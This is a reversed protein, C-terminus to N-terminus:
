IVSEKEVCEKTSKVRPLHTSFSAFKPTLRQISNPLEKLVENRKIPESKGLTTAKKSTKDGEGIAKPRSKQAGRLIPTPRQLIQTPENKYYIIPHPGDGNFHNENSWSTRPIKIVTCTEKSNSLLQQAPIVNSPLSPENRSPRSDPCGKLSNAEDLLFRLRRSLKAIEQQNRFKENQCATNKCEERCKRLEFRSSENTEGNDDLNNETPKQPSSYFEILEKVVAYEKHNVLM